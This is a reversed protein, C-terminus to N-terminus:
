KEDYYLSMFIEKSKVSTSLSFQKLKSEFEDITMTSLVDQNYQLFLILNVWNINLEDYDTITLLLEKEKGDNTTVIFTVDLYYIECFYDTDLDQHLLIDKIYGDKLDIIKQKFDTKFNM